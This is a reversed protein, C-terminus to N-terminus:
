GLSPETTWTPIAEDIPPFEVSFSMESSPPSTFMLWISTKSLPCTASPDTAAAPRTTVGAVLVSIGRPLAPYRTSLWVAIAPFPVPCMASLSTRCCGVSPTGWPVCIRMPVGDGRRGVPIEAIVFRSPLKSGSATSPNEPVVISGPV